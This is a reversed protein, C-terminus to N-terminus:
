LSVRAIFDRVGRLMLDVQEKTYEEYKGHAAKNRLDLWVTVSKQDLKNYVNAGALDANLQDTKRPISKGQKSTEIPINNKQCLQRLHEELVSGIIVAAPDKYDESLLYSAMELFDSFIEASVLGRTSFLWGGAIEERAGELIGLGREVQYPYRDRVGSSFEICYPHDQRFLRQLYSLSSSRFDVFKPDDVEEKGYQDAKSTALVQKGKEILQDARKIIDDLKM